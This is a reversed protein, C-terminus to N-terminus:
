WMMEALLSDCSAAVICRRERPNLTVLDRFEVDRAVGGAEALILVAALYDWVGHSDGDLNSYGDLTGDAVMCLEISAAGYARFQWTEAKNSSMGNIAVVADGALVPEAVRIPEPQGDGVQRTAGGGRVARWTVKRSQDVVTALLPGDADVACLSTAWCPLSRSANTSGDVPDVVVTVAAGYGDRGSEESVVGFGASRLAETVVADADLDLRYQGPREGRGVRDAVAVADAVEAAIRDFLAFTTANEVGGRYRTATGQRVQSVPEWHCHSVDWAEDRIEFVMCGTVAEVDVVLPM